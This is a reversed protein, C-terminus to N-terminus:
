ERHFTGAQLPLTTPFLDILKTANWGGDALAFRGGLLLLGGGRRDVFQRILERQAPTFYTAEVSGIVLGQYAFLDQARTPFGEALEKPDEVNQRYLKNESTRLMSVLRLIRDDEAARRIFKYEWRP